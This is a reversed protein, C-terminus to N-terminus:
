MSQYAKTAEEISTYTSFITNLKTIILLNKVYNSPNSLFLEGGVKRAKSLLTILVGLGSSNIHKLEGLDIIIKRIQDEELIENFSEVIPVGDHEGILNGSLQYIGIDDLQKYSFTM